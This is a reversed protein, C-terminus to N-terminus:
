AGTAVIRNGVDITLKSPRGNLLVTIDEAQEANAALAALQAGIRRIDAQFFARSMLGRAARSVLEFQRCDLDISRPAGGADPMVVYVRRDVWDVAEPLDPVRGTEKRWWASQSLLEVKAKPIQRAVISANGLHSSFAPDVIAFTGQHPPRRIGQLAELGTLIRDRIDVTETGDVSKHIREFDGHYRFGLREDCEVSNEARADFYARRRLFQYLKREGSAATKLELRTHPAGSSPEPPLFRGYEESEYRELQDDVQRAARDGPDLLKMARFVKLRALERDGIRGGFAAEHFLYEYQWGNGNRRVVRAHVDGCRLGGSILHAMFVLLDRITIVHNTQEALRLLTEIASRRSEGRASDDALLRHNEFIPCESRAECQECATWKRRDEAWNRLAQRALSKDGEASVSQHNLDIVCIDGGPSTEGTALVGELAEEVQRLEGKRRSIVERLRGENACIVTVRDQASLADVIRDAGLEPDLESLDKVIHLYKGDRIEAVPYTGDGHNKLTTRVDATENSRRQILQGCLHTKGHGADGTLLILRSVQEAVVQDVFELAKTAIQDSHRTDVYEAFLQDFNADFPQYQWLREVHPNTAFGDASRKALTHDVSSV